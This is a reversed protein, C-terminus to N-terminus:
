DLGPAFGHRMTNETCCRPEVFHLLYDAGGAKTGSGSLGFGGFPQRAVLAGTINRNLYLNGVRFEQRAAELHSPKRSYVGGTLKYATGNAVELAQEFSDVRMVSLVPGFIEEQALRHESRIGSFIHPGILPKGVTQQLGPAVEGALELKGESRGVDIYGRIKAAAAEDIVPGLDTAPDAPDGVVLTRTSEILRRLFQEYVGDLVIARSCASCKQGAYGFASQRVGLVAEDLDASDDVIIANKGGMECVVRKVHNQGEPTAAAAEIIELGVQKSGTFAILAVRPDRVLAAGVVRGSGPLLQVVDAPVGARWLIECMLRAIGRTQTSPKVLATNGVSLAAVTMGTCIALPFNWPSIVAAVGRPQYWAHNLEGVFQGLRERRLLGVSMQAYYECFDIAECVDADAERWTKGAERIMVGALEDRRTRMEASARLLISSREIPDMNRWAPFAAASRAIAADVQEPSLDGELTPVDATPIARAFTRRQDSQAFDRVPENIFPSNEIATGAVALRDPADDSEDDTHPSALLEEEPADDSFGARLWSQNSTNELLRRVLYAMGPIMQGVPVYERLRLGQGIVAAKLEDGMGLLMQLEVAWAPLGHKELLALTYAISRINHSGLALKVGGEGARRPMADVFQGAMREFCADTQRKKTWVPVPWGMQEAHVVEYDWYAGKILRVTVQRGLGRAWSILRWADEEGSRLYSQLAIGAPFDFRECCREFLAITLEKLAHHEMDFNVLVNHRRAAELIPQLADTLRALSGDFDIPDTRACLSSIKISVNTRPVPDIHDSELPPRPDWSGTQMALTEILDLYRQRYACAEADSLCAEGLLDVSFGAGRDWLAKLKPVATDADAGAIFNGAMARIRGTVTKALVGKALRGAKLGMEVGPPLTVGPQSLYDTLYSHVMAPTTLMPFVDVFRFLQIKFAPDKMAWHMLADSWFKSSLVGPRHEPAGRLLDRGLEVARRDVAAANPSEAPQLGAANETSEREHDPRAM